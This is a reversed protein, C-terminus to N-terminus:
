LVFTAFHLGVSTFISILNKHKHITAGISVSISTRSSVAKLFVLGLLM